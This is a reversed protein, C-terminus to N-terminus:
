SPSAVKNAQGWRRRVLWWQTAIVVVIPLLLKTAVLLDEWRPEAGDAAAVMGLFVIALSAFLALLTATADIAIPSRAVLLPLALALTTYLTVRDLGGWGVDAKIFIGLLVQVAVGVVASLLGAFLLTGISRM